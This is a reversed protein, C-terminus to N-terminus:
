LRMIDNFMVFIGLGILLIMGVSQINMLVKRPVEKGRIIAYLSFLIISGDVVPIPLLNMIFLIISIVAGLHLVDLVPRSSSKAVEQTLQMIRVPGGLSEKVNVQGTFLYFLGEVNKKVYYASKTFAKGIINLGAAGKTVNTAMPKMNFAFGAIGYIIGEASKQEPIITLNTVKGNRMVKFNLRSEPNEFIKKKVEMTSDVEKGNLALIKDGKKLGMKEARSEEMVRAVEPEASVFWGAQGYSGSDVITGTDMVISKREGDREVVIEAEKGKRVNSPDLFYSEFENYSEIKQGNVSIIRDGTRLGADYAPTSKDEKLMYKYSEYVEIVPDFILEKTPFSVIVSLLLVAFFYNFLPGSAAILIRKWPTANYFSDPDTEVQTPDEGKFKCFGGFPFWGIQFKIGKIYKYVVAHGYGISFTEVKVGSIIGGILHGLEHIFILVGLVLGATLWYVADM